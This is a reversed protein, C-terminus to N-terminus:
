NCAEQRTATTLMQHHSYSLAAPVKSSHFEGLLGSILRNRPKKKHPIIQPFVRWVQEVGMCSSILQYWNPNTGFLHWYWRFSEMANKPRPAM